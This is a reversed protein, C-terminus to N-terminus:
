DPLSESTAWELRDQLDQHLADFTCQARECAAELLGMHDPRVTLRLSELRLCCEHAADRRARPDSAKLQENLQRFADSIEADLSM